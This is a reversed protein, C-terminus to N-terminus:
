YVDIGNKLKKGVLYCLCVIQDWRSTPSLRPGFQTSVIKTSRFSEKIHFQQNQFFDASSLFM